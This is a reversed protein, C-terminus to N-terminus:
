EAEKLAKLFSVPSTISKILDDLKNWNLFMKSMLDKKCSFSHSLRISFPHRKGSSLTIPPNFYFVKKHIARHIINCTRIKYLSNFKLVKLEDFLSDTRYLKNFNFLIKLLSKHVTILPKLLTQSAGGFFEIGYSIRSIVLSDYILYKANPTLKHRIHYFIPKLSNLKKCLQEIHQKWSLKTDITLGLLTTSQCRLIATDFLKIHSDIYPDKGFIM